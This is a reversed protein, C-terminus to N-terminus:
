NVCSVSSQSFALGHASDTRTGTHPLLYRRLEQCCVICVLTDRLSKVNQDPLRTSPTHVSVKVAALSIESTDNSCTAWM